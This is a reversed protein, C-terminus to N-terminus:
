FLKVLLDIGDLHKFSAGKAISHPSFYSFLFRNKFISSKQIKGVSMEALRRVMLLIVCRKFIYLYGKLFFISINKQALFFALSCKFM